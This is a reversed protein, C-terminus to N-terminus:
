QLSNMILNESNCENKNNKWEKYDNKWRQPDVLGLLKKYKKSSGLIDIQYVARSNLTHEHFMESINWEADILATQNLLDAISYVAPSCDGYAMEIIIHQLPRPIVCKNMSKLRKFLLFAGLALVKYAKQKENNLLSKYKEFLIMEILDIAHDSSKEDADYLLNHLINCQNSSSRNTLIANQHIFFKLVPDRVEIKQWYKRLYCSLPTIGSVVTNIDVKDEICKQLFFIPVRPTIAYLITFGRTFKSYYALSVNKKFLFEIWEPHHQLAYYIPRGYKTEYDFDIGLEKHKNEISEWSTEKNTYLDHLEDRQCSTLKKKVDQSGHIKASVIIFISMVISFMSKM